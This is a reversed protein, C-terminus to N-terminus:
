FGRSNMYIKYEECDTQVLYYDLVKLMAPIFELREEDNQYLSLIREIDEQIQSIVIQDEYSYEDVNTKM